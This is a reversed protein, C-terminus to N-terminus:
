NNKKKNFKLIRSMSKKGITVLNSPDTDNEFVLEKTSIKFNDDFNIRVSSLKRFLFNFIKAQNATKGSQKKFSSSM